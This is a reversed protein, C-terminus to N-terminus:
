GMMKLYKYVTLRSLDCVRALESVNMTVNMLSPYHRLFIAPIDDKTTRPRGIAAGKARANAMDAMIPTPTNNKNRAEM